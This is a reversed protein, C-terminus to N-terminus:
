SVPEETIIDKAQQGIKFVIFEAPRVAALGIECHFEGAERTEPPNLEEDSRVFFAQEPTEGALMGDRWCNYLFVNIQREVAKWLDWNNNEFVAWECGEAISREVMIFLRRVNLHSWLTDSSLTRAGWPRIGRGRFARFCNVGEPSLLDTEDKTLDRELGVVDKLVLNAAARHVGHEEDVAATLGAVHGCPPVLRTGKGAQNQVILWPYLLAAYKSDFRTRWDLAQDITYKKPVDLVAICTKMRECYDIAAKQVAEMDAESKFEGRELGSQLDPLCIMGVDDHDQLALLGSRNGLGDDRGIFDAPTAQGVGDTGGALTEEVDSAPLNWPMPTRSGLDTLRVTNSAANVVRVLAREHRPDFVCNDHIEYGFPSTVTLMVEVAEITTSTLDTYEGRLAERKNWTIKRREVTELRVYEARSGEMIRVVSGAELGRTLEVYAETSGKLLEHKLTARAPRSAPTLRVKVRNGWMGADKAEVKLTNRGYLDKMSVRAAQAAGKGEARAVRVIVAERGGNAFYAFVSQPLYYESAFGGFIAEFSKWSTVRVPKSIPGRVTYGLFATTDIKVRELARHRQVTGTQKEFYLDPTRHNV